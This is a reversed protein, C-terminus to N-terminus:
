SVVHAAEERIAQLVANADVSMRQTSSDTHVVPPLSNGAFKRDNWWAMYRMGLSRVAFEQDRVFTGGPFFEMLLPATQSHDPHPDAAAAGAPPAAGPAMFVSDFLHPGYPGMVISSRAVARMREEWEAGRVDVSGNGRVVYAEGLVGERVLAGLGSVLAEHDAEGLRAGAGYPEEQM